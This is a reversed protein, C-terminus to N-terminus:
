WSRLYKKHSKMRRKNQFMKGCIIKVVSFFWFSIRLIGNKKSDVEIPNVASSIEALLADCM